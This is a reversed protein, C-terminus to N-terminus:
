GLRTRRHSAAACDVVRVGRDCKSADPLRACQGRRRRRDAGADRRSVTRRARRGTRPAVSVAETRSLRRRGAGDGRQRHRRGAVVAADHRAGSRDIGADHRPQDDRRRRLPGGRAHRRRQSRHRDGGPDRRRRRPHRALLCGPLHRLTIEILTLGADVLCRALPVADDERDLAIVPFAVARRLLSEFM